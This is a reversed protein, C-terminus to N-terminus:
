TSSPYLLPCAKAHIQSPYRLRDALSKHYADCFPQGANDQTHRDACPLISLAQSLKIVTLIYRYLVIGTIPM